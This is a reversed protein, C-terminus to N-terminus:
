DPKPQIFHLFSRHLKQLTDLCTKNVYLQYNSTIDYSVYSIDMSDTFTSTSLDFHQNHNSYMINSNTDNSSFFRLDFPNKFEKEMSEILLKPSKVNKYDSTTIFGLNNNGVYAGNEFTSIINSLSVIDNSFSLDGYATNTLILYESSSKIRQSLAEVSNVVKNIEIDVEGITPERGLLTLYVIKVQIDSLM